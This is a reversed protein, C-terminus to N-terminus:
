FPHVVMFRTRIMQTDNELLLSYCGQPLESTDLHKEQVGKWEGCRVLIGAASYIRFTGETGIVKLYSDSPNPYLVLSKGSLEPIANIGDIIRYSCHTGNLYVDVTNFDSVSVAPGLLDMRVRVVAAMNTLPNLSYATFRLVSDSPNLYYSSNLGSAVDIITDFEIVQNSYKLSFDLAYITDDSDFYVPFEVQGGSYTAQSLDFYVSDLADISRTSNLVPTGAFAYSVSLCAVCAALLARIITKMPIKKALFGAGL